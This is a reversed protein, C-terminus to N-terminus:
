PMALNLEGTICPTDEECPQSFALRACRLSISPFRARASPLGRRWHPPARRSMPSPQEQNGANERPRSDAHDGHRRAALLTAKTRGLVGALADNPKAASTWLEAVGRAPYLLAPQWPPVTIVGVGPWAFVGPMLLLGRRDLRIRSREKIDIMLVDEALRVRPHLSDL